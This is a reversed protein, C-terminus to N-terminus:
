FDKKTVNYGNNKLYAIAAKKTLPTLLNKLWILFKM